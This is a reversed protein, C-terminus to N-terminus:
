RASSGNTPRSTAILTAWGPLAFGPREIGVLAPAGKEGLRVGGALQRVRVDHGHEVGADVIVVAVDDHLVDAAVRQLGPAVGAVLAQRQLRDDIDGEVAAMREIVGMAAPHDMAVDLRAVDHHAIIAGGQDGIERDRQHM